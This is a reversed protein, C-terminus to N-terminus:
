GVFYFCHLCCTSHSIVYKNDSFRWWKVFSFSVAKVGAPSLAFVGQFSVTALFLATIIDSIRMKFQTSTSSKKTHTPPDPPLTPNCMTTNRLQVIIPKAFQLSLQLQSGFDDIVLFPNESGLTPREKEYTSNYSM